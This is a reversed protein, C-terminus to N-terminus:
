KRFGSIDVASLLCKREDGTAIGEIYVYTVPKNDYGLTV